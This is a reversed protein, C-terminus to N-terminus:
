GKRGVRGRAVEGKGREREEERELKRARVPTDEKERQLARRLMAAESTASGGGAQGEEFCADCSRELELQIDRVIM